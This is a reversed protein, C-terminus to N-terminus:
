SGIQILKKPFSVNYIFVCNKELHLIAESTRVIIYKHVVKTRKKFQDFLNYIM